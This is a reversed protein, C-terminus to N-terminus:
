QTAEQTEVVRLEKSDSLFLRKSQRSYSLTPRESPEVPDLELVVLELTEKM